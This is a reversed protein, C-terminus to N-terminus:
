SPHFLVKWFEILNFFSAGHLCDIQNNGLQAREEWARWGSTFTHHCINRREFRPQQVAGRGLTQKEDFSKFDQELSFWTKSRMLVDMHHNRHLIICIMASSIPRDVFRDLGCVVTESLWSHHRGSIAPVLAPLKCPNPNVNTFPSTFTFSLM